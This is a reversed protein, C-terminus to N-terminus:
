YRNPNANLCANELKCDRLLGFVSTYKNLATNTNHQTFVAAINRLTSCGVGKLKLINKNTSAPSGFGLPM